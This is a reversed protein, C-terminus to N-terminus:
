TSPLGSVGAGDKGAQRVRASAGYLQSLPIVLYVFLVMLAGPHTMWNDLVIYWYGWLGIVCFLWHIWGLGVEHLFDRGGSAMVASRRIRELVTAWGIWFFGAFILFAIRIGYEKASGSAPWDMFDKRSLGWGITATLIVMGWKFLDVFLSVCDKENM